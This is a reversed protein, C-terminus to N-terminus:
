RRVIGGGDCIRMIPAPSNPMEVALARVRSGFYSLLLIVIKSAEGWNGLGVPEDTSVLRM